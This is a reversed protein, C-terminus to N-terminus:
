RPPRYWCRRPRPTGPPSAPRRSRRSRTGTGSTRRGRPFHSACRRPAGARRSRGCRRRSPTVHGPQRAQGEAERHPHVRERQPDGRELAGVGAHDGATLHLNGAGVPHQFEEVAVVDARCEQNGPVRRQGVRVEDPLDDVAAVLQRVVAPHVLVRAIEVDGALAEDNLAPQLREVEHGAHPGATVDGGGPVHALVGHVEHVLETEVEVPAAHGGVHHRDVHALPSRQSM